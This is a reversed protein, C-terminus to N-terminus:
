NNHLSGSIEPLWVVRMTKYFFTLASFILVPGDVGQERIHIYEDRRFEESLEEYFRGRWCHTM